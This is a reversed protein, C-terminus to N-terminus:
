LGAKRGGLWALAALTAAFTGRAIQPALAVAGYLHSADHLSLAQLAMMAGAALPLGGPMMVRVFAAALVLLLGFAIELLDIWAELRSPGVLDIFAAIAAYAGYAAMGITSATLM